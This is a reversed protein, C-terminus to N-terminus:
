ERGAGFSWLYRSHDPHLSPWNIRLHLGSIYVLSEGQEILLSAYTHRLDHVRIHRLGAKWCSRGIRRHFDGEDLLTGHASILVWPPM